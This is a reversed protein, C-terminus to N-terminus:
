EWHADFTVAITIVGSTTVTGVNKVAIIVYELPNVIIPSAPTLLLPATAGLTGVTVNNGGGYNEVGIPIRRYAKTAAGEATALSLATGGYALSYVMSLPGANALVTTVVGQVKVGTIVLSKGASIGLGSPVQLFCLIGDNNVALTPQVDFQGGLGIYLAQATNSLVLGAGVALNNPMYATNGAPQATGTGSGVGTAVFVTGATNASAGISTFSTTGPILITYTTGVTFFGATIVCPQWQSGMNGMGAMIQPWPRNTEIDLMYCEMSFVDLSAITSSSGVVRTNLPQFPSSTPMYGAATTLINITGYLIGNIWFEVFENYIKITTSIQTNTPPVLSLNVTTEVGANNVVGYVTNNTARFFVGDTPASSGSASFWGWELIATGDTAHIVQVSMQVLLGADGYLPFMRYSTHQCAVAGTALGVNLSLNGSYALTGGSATTFFDGTNQAGYEFTEYFLLSDRGVRLRRGFSTDVPRVLRAAGAAGDHVISGIGALGAQTNVVPFNTFVNNNADVETIKGTFGEHRFGGM